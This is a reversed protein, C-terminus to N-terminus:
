TEDESLEFWRALWFYPLIATLVPIVIGILDIGKNQWIAFVLMVCIMIIGCLACNMAPGAGGTGLFRAALLNLGYTMLGISSWTGLTAGTLVDAWLGLVMLILSVGINIGLGSWGCVAWLLALPWPAHFVGFEFPIVQLASTLAVLVAGVALRQRTALRGPLISSV